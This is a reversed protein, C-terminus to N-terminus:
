METLKEKLNELRCTIQYHHHGTALTVHGNVSFTDLHTVSSILLSNIQPIKDSLSMAIVEKSSAYEM